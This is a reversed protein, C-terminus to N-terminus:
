ERATLSAVGPVSNSEVLFSGDEPFVFRQRAVRARDLPGSATPRQTASHIWGRKPWSQWRMSTDKPWGGWHFIARPGRRSFTWDGGRRVRVLFHCIPDM